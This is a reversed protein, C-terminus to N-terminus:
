DRKKMRVAYEGDNKPFVEGKDFHPRNEVAKKPIIGEVLFDLFNGPVIEDLDIFRAELHPNFLHVDYDASGLAEHLNLCVTERSRM